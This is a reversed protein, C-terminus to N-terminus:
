DLKTEPKDVLIWDLGQAAPGAWPDIWVNGTESHKVLAEAGASDPLARPPPPTLTSMVLGVAAALMVGALAPRLLRQALARPAKAALRAAVSPWLDRRPMVPEVAPLLARLEAAEAYFGRCRACAALHAEVSQREPAALEGREYKTQNTRCISCRM